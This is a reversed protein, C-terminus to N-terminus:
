HSRRSLLPSTKIEKCVSMIPCELSKAQETVACVFNLSCEFLKGEVQAFNM